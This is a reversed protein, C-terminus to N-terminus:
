IYGRSKALSVLETLKSMAESVHDRSDSFVEKIPDIEPVPVALAVSKGTGQVELDAIPQDKYKERLIELQDAMGGFFIKVFGATVQHMVQINKPKGKPHFEIWTSGAPRPKADQVCLDPYNERAYAVYDQVFVTMPESIKPRYGRRNKEIGEQILTARYALRAHQTGRGVFHAMIEEYSVEADYKESHKSSGLYRRPAIICTRFEDWSGDQRGEEGRERYRNGQDPQPPADIKNEILVAKRSGDEAEFLFVLDSEGLQADSVSHWAGIRERFVPTEYVRASFWARFEASVELEELIIFDVDREAVSSIFKLDSLSSSM